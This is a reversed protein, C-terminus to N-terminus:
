KSGVEPPSPKALFEVTGCPLLAVTINLTNTENGLSLGCNLGVDPILVYGCENTLPRGQSDTVSVVSCCHLPEHAFASFGARYTQLDDFWMRSGALEVDVGLLNTRAIVRSSEPDYHDTIIINTCAVQINWLEEPTFSGCKSYTLGFKWASESPDLCDEFFLTSRGEKFVERERFANIRNGTADEVWM